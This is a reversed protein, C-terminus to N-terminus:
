RRLDVYTNRTMKSGDNILLMVYYTGDPLANGNNNDGKWQHNV